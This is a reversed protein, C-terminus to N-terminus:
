DFGANIADAVKKAVADAGPGQVTVQVTEGRKIGLTMLEVVSTANAGNVQVDLGTSAVLHALKAVPRAHLGAADVVTAEMSAEIAPADAAVRELDELGLAEAAEKALAQAMEAVARAVDQKTGGQQAATAAVVAGEVLPGVAVLFDDPDEAFEMFTDVTLDSSGIDTLFVVGSGASQLLAEKAVREVMDFSTGLGGDPDGGSAGIHVEPAMAEALDKVGLAIKHSHSVLVLAVAM